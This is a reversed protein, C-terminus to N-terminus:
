AESVYDALQDLAGTWGKQMGEHAAEFTQIETATADIAVGGAVQTM